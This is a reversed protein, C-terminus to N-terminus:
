NKIGNDKFPQAIADHTFLTDYHKTIIVIVERINYCKEKVQFIDLNVHIHYAM